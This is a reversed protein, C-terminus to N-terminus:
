SRKLNVLEELMSDSVTIVRSNAQYGRQTVIMNTFESALDVNSMELRGNRIITKNEDGAITYNADGSSATSTFYSNGYESLGSSNVFTAVGIEMSTYSDNQFTGTVGNLTGTFSGDANMKINSLNASNTTTIPTTTGDAGHFNLGIVSVPGDSVSGSVGSLSVSMTGAANVSLGSLAALNSSTVATATGDAAIFTKGIMSLAGKSDHIVGTKGGMTATVTGDANLTVGSLASANTITLTTGDSAYLTDGVVSTNPQYLISHATTSPSGGTTTAYVNGSGDVGMGDCVTNYNSATVTQLNGDADKFSANLYTPTTAKDFSLTGVIDGISVSISGDQKVSIDTIKDYQEKDLLIGQGNDAHLTTGILCVPSGAVVKGSDTKKASMVYNGNSDVMYGDKNIKFKGLRTYYTEGTGDSRTNVAFYGEGDIYLDYPNDTQTAGTSDMNKSVGAVQTGYGVQSPDINDTGTGITQYFLDSFTTQSSKFGATNVNAINNGIVDMATQQARLGTVASTLSRMM